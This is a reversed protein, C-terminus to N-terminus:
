KILFSELKRGKELEAVLWLPKRGRGTWKLTADKPHRYKTAVKKRKREPPLTGMLDNLDFGSNAALEELQHKLSAKEQQKRLVIANSIKQQLALLEKYSLKNLEITMM